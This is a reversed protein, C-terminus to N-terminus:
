SIRIGLGRVNWRFHSYNRNKMYRHEQEAIGKRDIMPLIGIYDLNM